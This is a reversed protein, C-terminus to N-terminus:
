AAPQYLRRQFMLGNDGAIKAAALVALDVLPEVLIVTMYAASFTGISAVSETTVGQGYVVWFAVWAIIGAQFAASLAMAQGYSVDKYATHAPIVKKAVLNMAFLPLILTTLNMGYQPLDYPAITLGQALLGFALGIAAAGAGFILFLTTGFIFHVESVGVPYHPLFEFFSYVLATTAVARAALNTVGGDSRIQDFSLKAIIGVSTAATAYSFAIKAADVVGPEIHM